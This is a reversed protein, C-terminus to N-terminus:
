VPSSRFTHTHTHTHPLPLATVLSSIHQTRAAYTSRIYQTVETYKTVETYSTHLKNIVETYSQTYSTHLRPVTHHQLRLLERHQPDQEDDEFRASHAVPCRGRLEDWIPFPNEIWRPDRHDFDVAWDQVPPHRPKSSNM